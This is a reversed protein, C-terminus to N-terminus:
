RKRGKPLPQVTAQRDGIAYGRGDARVIAHPSIGAEILKDRCWAITGEFSETRCAGGRDHWTYEARWRHPKAM